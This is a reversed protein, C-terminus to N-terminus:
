VTSSGIVTGHATSMYSAVGETLETIHKMNMYGLYASALCGILVFILLIIIIKEMNTSVTPRTLAREIFNDEKKPDHGAIPSYDTKSLAFKEDDIDVWNVGLSRYFVNQKDPISLRVTTKNHKFKIFGEEEEGVEFYDRQKGRIKILFKKDRSQKVKLYKWMFGKLLFGMIIITLLIVGGYILAQQIIPNMTDDGM